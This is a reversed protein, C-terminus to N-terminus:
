KEAIHKWDKQNLNIVQNAARELDIRSDYDNMKQAAFTFANTLGWQTLGAGDAGNALYGLVNNKTEEGSVNLKKMSLKVVEPLDFNKIKKEQAAKLKLVEKDFNEQRLTSKVIDRVERWFVQDGMSRTEQSLMTFYEDSSQSRGVHYKRLAANTILGNMCVLRYILPEVRLSGSGVDSNSLVIGYQVVDNLGVESVIRPSVAKLYFRQETIEAQLVKLGNRELEPLIFTVLEETDLPRYRDSVFARLKSVSQNSHVTRIMRKESQGNDLLDTAKKTLCYNVNESLLEPNNTLLFEYYNKPIGLYQGIQTHAWRTPKSVYQGFLINGDNAMSMARLSLAFDQPDRNYSLLKERIHNLDTRPEVTTM